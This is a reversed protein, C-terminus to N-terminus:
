RSRLMAIARQVSDEDVNPVKALIHKQITSDDMNKAIKLYPKPIQDLIQSIEEDTYHVKAVQQIPVGQPTPAQQPQNFKAMLLSMLMAEPSADDGDDDDDDEEDAMEEYLQKQEWRLKELEFKQRELAMEQMIRNREAKLRKAETAAIQDEDDFAYGSRPSPKYTSKRKIEFGFLSVM